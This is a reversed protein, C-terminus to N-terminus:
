QHGQVRHLGLPCPPTERSQSKPSPSFPPPRPLGAGPLPPARVSRQPGRCLGPSDLPVTGDLREFLLGLADGTFTARTSLPSSGPASSNFSRLAHSAMTQASPAACDISFLLLVGVTM